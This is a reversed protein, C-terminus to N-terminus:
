PMQNLSDLSMIHYSYIYWLLSTCHVAIPLEQYGCNQKRKVINETFFSKAKDDQRQYGNVMKVRM